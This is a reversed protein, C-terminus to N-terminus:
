NPYNKNLWDVRIKHKEKHYHDYLVNYYYKLGDVTLFRYGDVVFSMPKVNSLKFFKGWGRGVTIDLNGTSDQYMLDHVGDKEGSKIKNSKLLSPVIKENISMDIDNNEVPMGHLVCAASACIVYDDSSIGLKDICDLHKVKKLNKLLQNNSLNLSEMLYSFTIM